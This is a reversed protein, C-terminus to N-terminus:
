MFFIMTAPATEARAATLKAPVALAKVGAPDGDEVQFTVEPETWDRVKMSTKGLMTEAKLGQGFFGPAVALGVTMRRDVWGLLSGVETAVEPSDSSDPTVFRVSEVFQEFRSKERQALEADGRVRARDRGAM